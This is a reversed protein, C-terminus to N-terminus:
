PGPQVLEARLFRVSEGRDSHLRRAQSVALCRSVQIVFEGELILELFDAGLIVFFELDVRQLCRLLEALLIVEFADLGLGVLCHGDGEGDVVRFVGFRRLVLVFFRLIADLDFSTRLLRIVQLLQEFRQLNRLFLPIPYLRCLEVAVIRRHTVSEPNLRESALKGLAADVACCAM